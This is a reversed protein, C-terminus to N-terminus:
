IESLRESVSHMIQVAEGIDDRLVQVTTGPSPVGAYNVLHKQDFQWRNYDLTKSEVGFGTAYGSGTTQHIICRERDVGKPMNPPGQHEEGSRIYQALWWDYTNLWAPPTKGKGTMFVDVFNARSYIIPKRGTKDEIYKGCAWVTAAVISPPKSQSLEVDLTLPLEGQDNGVTKLFNECQKKATVGPYVVHYASRYLGVRKSEVWNRQFWSDVYGWSITARIGVFKVQKKNIAVADWNINGQWRSVDIGFPKEM